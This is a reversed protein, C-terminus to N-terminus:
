KVEEDDGRQEPTTKDIRIEPIQGDVPTAHVEAESLMKRIVMGQLQIKRLYPDYDPDVPEPLSRKTKRKRMLEIKSELWLYRKTIGPLGLFM